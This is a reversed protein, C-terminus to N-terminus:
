FLVHLVGSIVFVAFRGVIRDVLEDIDREGELLDFLSALRWCAEVKMTEDNCQNGTRDLDPPIMHWKLNNSRM